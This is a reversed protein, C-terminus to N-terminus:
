KKVCAAAAAAAAANATKLQAQLQAVQAKLSAVQSATQAGSRRWQALETLYGEITKFSNVWNAMTPAGPITGGMWLLLPLALNAQYELISLDNFAMQANNISWGSQSRLKLLDSSAQQLQKSLGQAQLAAASSRAAVENQVGLLWSAMATPAAGPDAAVPLTPAKVFAGGSTAPTSPPILPGAGLGPLGYRPLPQLARPPQRRAHSNM